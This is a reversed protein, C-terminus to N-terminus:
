MKVASTPTYPMFPANSATANIAHQSTRKTIFWSSTVSPVSVNSEGTLACCLQNLQIDSQQTPKVSAGSAIVTAPLRPQSGSVPMANGNTLKPHQDSRTFVNKRPMAMVTGRADLHARCSLTGIRQLTRQSQEDNESSQQDQQQPAAFSEHLPLALAHVHVALTQLAQTREFLRDDHQVCRRIVSRRSCVVNAIVKSKAIQGVRRPRSCDM